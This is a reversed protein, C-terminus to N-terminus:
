DVKKEMYIIWKFDTVNKPVSDDINLYCTYVFFSIIKFFSVVLLSIIAGDPSRWTNLVILIIMKISINSIFVVKLYTWKLQFSNLLYEYMWIKFLIFNPISIVSYLFIYHFKDSRDLFSLPYKEENTWLYLHIFILQFLYLSMCYKAYITEVNIKFEVEM